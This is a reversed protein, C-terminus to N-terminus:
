AQEGKKQHLVRTTYAPMVEKGSKLTLHPVLLVEGKRTNGGRGDSFTFDGEIRELISIDALSGPKLTGRRHDEGLARAPNITTMEIIQDLSLGLALFKSMTVLLSVVPWERNMTALDTSITTPLIGQDLAHRAVEFSFHNLGHSIDLVIGREIADRFEPVVNGDPDIVGGAEWTFVHDLIDGKELLPLLQCTFADMPDEPVRKRMDGIHVMLPIGAEAAVRKATKVAEIGLNEALPGIARLKIGKILDRHEVATKLTAEPDMDEWRQIEPMNTLGTSAIHLFCFVDTQSKSAVDRKFDFFNAAGTSGGDCITTVGTLVGVEDPALGLPVVEGAAHLHIDVLGPTVLKGRADIVRKAEGPEIGSSVAAIKGDSVAIDRPGHIGQAPDSVKGGKVIVDYM